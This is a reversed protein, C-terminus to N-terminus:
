KMENNLDSEIEFIIDTAKILSNIFEESLKISESHTERTKIINSIEKLKLTLDLIKSTINPLGLVPIENLSATQKDLNNPLSSLNNIVSEIENSVFQHSEISRNKLSDVIKNQQAILRKKKSVQDEKEINNKIKEFIDIERNTETEYDLLKSNLIRTSKTVETHPEILTYRIENLKTQLKEFNQIKEKRRSEKKKDFHQYIGWVIGVFAAPSLYKLVELM